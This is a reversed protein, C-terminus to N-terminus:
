AIARNFSGWREPRHGFWRRLENSPAREKAWLDISADEGKLGRPWPRDVLVRAGDGSEAPEYVRKLAFTWM